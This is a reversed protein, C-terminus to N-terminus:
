AEVAAIPTTYTDFYAKAAAYTKFAQGHTNGSIPYLVAWHEAVEITGSGAIRTGETRHVLRYERGFAGQGKELTTEISNSM